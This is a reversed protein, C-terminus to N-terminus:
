QCNNIKLKKLYIRGTKFYFVLIQILTIAAFVDYYLYPYKQYFEVFYFIESGILTLGFTMFHYGLMSDFEMSVKTTAYIISSALVILVPLIINILLINVFVIKIIKVIIKKSM